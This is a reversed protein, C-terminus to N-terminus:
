GAVPRARRRGTADHSRHRMLRQPSSIIVEVGVAVRDDREATGTGIRRGAPDDGDVVAERKTTM